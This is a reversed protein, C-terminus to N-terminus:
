AALFREMDFATKRRLMFYVWPPLQVGLELPFAALAPREVDQHV